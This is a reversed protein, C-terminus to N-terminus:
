ISFDGFFHHEDLAGAGAIGLVVFGVARFNAAHVRCLVGKEIPVADGFAFGVNEVDVDARAAFVVLLEHVPGHLLLPDEVDPSLHGLDKPFPVLDHYPAYVREGPLPHLHPRIEHNQGLGDNGRGSRLLEGSLEANGAAGFTEKPFRM